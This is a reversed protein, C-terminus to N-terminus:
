LTFNCTLPPKGSLDPLGGRVTNRAKHAVRPCVMGHHRGERVGTPNATTPMASRYRRSDAPSTLSITLARHERRPIEGAWRQGIEDM